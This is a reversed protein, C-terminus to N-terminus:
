DEESKTVYSAKRMAKFLKPEAKAVERYAANSDIGPHTSQYSAVKEAFAREPDGVASPTDGGRGGITRTLLDSAEFQEAIGRQMTVYANFLSTEAHIDEGELMYIADLVKAHVDAEGRFIKAGDSAPDTGRIIESFTRARRNVEERAIRENAERLNKEMDAFKRQMENFVQVDVVEPTEETLKKNEKRSSAEFPENKDEAKSEGKPDKDVPPKAAFCESCMTPDDASFSEEGFQNECSSCKKQM